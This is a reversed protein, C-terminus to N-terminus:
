PDKLTGPFADSPGQFTGPRLVDSHSSRSACKSVDRPRGQLDRPGDRSRGQLTRPSGQPDRSAGQPDMTRGQLDRSLGKLTGQLERPIGLPGQLTRSPGPGRFTAAVAVVAVNGSSDDNRQLGTVTVGVEQQPQLSSCPEFVNGSTAQYTITESCVYSTVAVLTQARPM